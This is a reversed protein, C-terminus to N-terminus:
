IIGNTEEKQKKWYEIQLKYLADYDMKIDLAYCRACWYTYEGPYEESLHVSPEGCYSCLDYKHYQM